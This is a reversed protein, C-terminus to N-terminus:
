HRGPVTDDEDGESTASRPLPEPRGPAPRRSRVPGLPLVLDENEIEDEEDDPRGIVGIGAAVETGWVKEDESLWTQREREKRDGTGAGGMGGMPPMYPMGGMGAGLGPLASSAAASDPSGSPAAPPSGSQSAPWQDPNGVLDPVGPGSSALGALGPVGAGATAAAGGTPEGLPPLHLSGGGAGGPSSLDPTALLPPLKAGSGGTPPELMLPKGDAGIIPQGDSGLLEGNPGTLPTGGPGLLEGNPGLLPEFDKGLLEGHGGLLPQGDPGLVEGNPGLLPEFDKGLLEGHEGLLPRGGRGMVQGLPGLLPELNGDLLEGHEGLRPQGDPGLAEGNPGLSTNGYPDGYSYPPANGYPDFSEYAYPPANGYPNNYDYPPANGYPNNYDYPPANGYPNNYDYPPANGGYPNNNYNFPPTNFNFEPMNFNFPPTNNNYPPTNYNPDSNPVGAKPNFPKPDHLPKLARALQEFRGNLEPLWIRATDDFAILWSAVYRSIAKNLTDWTAPNRLDAKSGDLMPFRSLAEGIIREREEPSPEEYTYASGRGGGKHQVARVGLKKNYNPSGHIIGEDWMHQWVSHALNNVMTGVSSRLNHNYANEFVPYLGNVFGIIGNWADMTADAATLGHNKAMEDHWDELMRAYHELREQIVAAAKGKFDTNNSKLDNARKRYEGAKTNFVNQLELLNNRLDGLTYADLDNRKLKTLDVMFTTLDDVGKEWAQIANRDVNVGFYQKDWAYYALDQPVNRKSPDSNDLKAPAAASDFMFWKVEDIKVNKGAGDPVTGQGATGVGNTPTTKPATPSWNLHWLDLKEGTLAALAEAYSWQKWSENSPFGPDNDGM